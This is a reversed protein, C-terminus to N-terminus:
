GRGQRILRRHVQPPEVHHELAARRFERIETASGTNHLLYRALQSRKSFTQFWLQPIAGLVPWKRNQEHGDGIQNGAPAPQDCRKLPM